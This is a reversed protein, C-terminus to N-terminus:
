SKNISRLGCRAFITHQANAIAQEFITIQVTKTEEKSDKDSSMLKVFEDLALDLVQLVKKEQATLDNRKAREEMVITNIIEKLGLYGAGNRRSGDIYEQVQKTYRREMDAISM